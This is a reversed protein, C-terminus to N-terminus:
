FDLIDHIDSFLAPRSATATQHTAAPPVASAVATDPPNRRATDQYNKTSVPADEDSDTETGDSDSVSVSQDESSVSGSFSASAPRAVEFGVPLLGTRPTGLPMHLEEDESSASSHGSSSTAVSSSSRAYSASRSYMVDGEGLLTSEIGDTSPAAYDTSHIVAGEWAGEGKEEGDDDDYNDNNGSPQPSGEELSDDSEESDSNSESDSDSDASSSAETSDSEGESSDESSDTSEKMNGPIREAANIEHDRRLAQLIDVGQQISQRRTHHGPIERARRLVVQDHAIVRDVATFEDDEDSMDSVEYDSDNMELRDQKHEEADPDAPLPDKRKRGIVHPFLRALKMKADAKSSQIFFHVLVGVFLAPVVVLLPFIAFLQTHILVIYGVFSFSTMQLLIDQLSPPLSLFNGAFFVLLITASRTFASFKKSYKKSVNQVHNYSQRPWPTSFRSIMKAEKVEPYQRALRSSVFLFHAANFSAESESPNAGDKHQSAAGKDDDLSAHFERITDVLRRKIKTIDAMIFSPVLVHTVYVIVTSVLLIEMCIWIAFSLFWSNQQHSAQTLAFLLIYFLMAANLLLLFAWGAMKAEFSVHRVKSSDRDGKLELIKGSIGPLLDCQFLFLLKRGVQRDSARQEKLAADEDVVARKIRKLDMLVMEAIDVDDKRSFLQKARSIVDTGNGSKTLFKGDSDLGWLMSFEDREEPRLHERYVRLKMSLSVLEVRCAVGFAKNEKAGDTMGLFSKLASRSSRRQLTSDSSPQGPVISQFAGEAGGSAASTKAQTVGSDQLLLGAAAAVKEATEAVEEEEEEAGKTPASLVHLIIWDAMLSIPTAVVACFIAVFLIIRLSQDPSIFGCSGSDTGGSGAVVWACKPDSNSFASKDRVCETETLHQECSGDDPNTLIYTISQVFLMVIVNTFLSLVRLVRPFSDSFYFIIGFWRHHQKVEELFRDAFTHSGLVRPLSDEVMALEANVIVNAKKQRRSRKKRSMSGLLALGQKSVDSASKQKDNASAKTQKAINDSRHSLLLGVVLATAIAGLTALARWSETVTSGSLDDATRVTSAFNDVTAQLMSVYNVSLASSANGSQLRRTSDTINCACTVTTDTFAKVLCGSDSGGVMSAESSEGSFGLLSCAGSYTTVPCQQAVTSETGNCSVVLTHGNSCNASHMGYDGGLCSFTHTENGANENLGSFDIERSYALDIEITCPSSSCPLGSMLLMLPNSRLDADVYNFLEARMEAIVLQVATGQQPLQVANSHKGSYAEAASQPISAAVTGTSDAEESLIQVSLRFEGKRFTVSDQGPLLNSAVLSGFKDLITYARETSKRKAQADAAAQSPSLRRRRVQLRRRANAKSLSEAVANVTDLLVKTTEAPLASSLAADIVADLLTLLRSASAETLESSAQSALALANIWAAVVQGDPNELSVLEQLADILTDRAGQKSLLDSALLDCTDSGWAEDCECVAMCDVAGAYCSDAASLLEGSDRWAHVCVGHGSCAAACPKLNVALLRRAAASLDVCAANSDGEEGVYAEYLCESCTHPTKSCSKRNLSGCNPALSCNVGNLLYSSLAAAQKMSDADGSAASFGSQVFLDIQSPSKSPGRVVTVGIASSTNAHLADFVQVSCRVVFGADEYGAPLLSSGFSLELRSRLIVDLGRSSTYSFQYSIPLDPDVWQLAVFTFSEVLEVGSAPAVYFSGQTPPSNITITVSASSRRGQYPIAGVFSFTLTVGSPLSNAPIAMYVTKSIEKETSSPTSHAAITHVLPFLALAGLDVSSDDVVWTANGGTSAPVSLTGVLQLPTGANIVRSAPLNISSVTVVPALAPLVSVWASMEASRVLQADTVVVTVRCEVGAATAKAALQFRSSSASLLLGEDFAGACSSNFTPSVQVCSWTFLLGQATGSVDEDYSASADVEITGSVRMTRVLGGGIAALVAGTKVYVQVSASSSQVSGAASVSLTVQYFSGAQLSYAPLLYKSPDKSASLLSISEVGGLSISWKYVLGASSHGGDCTSLFAASSLLVTDKRSVTRLAPGPLAVSPVTDNLVLVPRLQENCAGLFNCLKVVFNYNTGKQFLRSPIPHPPTLDTLTLLYSRLEVVDTGKTSFVAISSNTWPRGGSGTSGSVDLLLAACSGLVRPASVSVAPPVAAVPAAIVVSGSATKWQDFASCKAVQCKAKVKASLLGVSDGPRVCTGAAGQVYALVTASDSWSCTSASACDFDFLLSCAFKTSTGGQNTGSDFAIRVYSGDNAFVASKLVPTPPEQAASIVQIRTSSYVVEYELASAGSLVLSYEYEGIPLAPLSSSFLIPSLSSVSISSPFM